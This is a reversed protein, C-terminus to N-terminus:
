PVPVAPEILGVSLAEDRDVLARLTVDKIIAVFVEVSGSCTM